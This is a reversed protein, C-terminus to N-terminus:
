RLMKAQFEGQDDALYSLDCCEEGPTNMEDSLSRSGLRV